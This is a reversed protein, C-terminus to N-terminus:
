FEDRLCGRMRSIDQKRECKANLLGSVCIGLNGIFVHILRILVDTLLFIGVREFLPPNAIEQVLEFEETNDLLISTTTTSPLTAVCDIM